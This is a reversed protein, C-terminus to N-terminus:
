RKTYHDINIIQPTFPIDKGIGNIRQMKAHISQRISLIESWRQMFQLSRTGGDNNLDEMLQEIQREAAKIERELDEKYFSM